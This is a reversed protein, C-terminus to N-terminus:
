KMKFMNLVIEFCVGDDCNKVEIAGQLGDEVITKCIYLGIGTGGKNAEKTTFYSDFVKPLIEEPIGGGNDCVTIMMKDDDLKKFCVKIKPNKSKQSVFQDISNKYLNMIIQNIQVKSANLKMEDDLGDYDVELVVQYKKFYAELLIFADYAANKLTVFNSVDNVRFFNLFFEMTSQMNDLLKETNAVFMDVDNEDLGILQKKATMRLCNASLATLPQRWQHAIMSIMEGMAANKAQAQLMKSQNEFDKNSRGLKEMLFIQANYLETVDQRSANYGILSGDLGYLPAISTKAVFVSGDKKQNKLLGEWRQEKTITEWLEVFIDSPTDPHKIINHKKGILEDKSYGSIEEFYSSVYTIIGDLDTETYMISDDIVKNRIQLDEKLKINESIMNIREQLYKKNVPKTIYGDAQLDLAKLMYESNTYATLFIISQSSNIDRIEKAMELGDMKPMNIDTIVIDPLFKKYLILGEEGNQAVIVKKAVRKITELTIERLLEEDEVYLIVANKYKKNRM